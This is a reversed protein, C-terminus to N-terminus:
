DQAEVSFKSVNNNQFFITLRPYRREKPHIPAETISYGFTDKGVNPEGLAARVQSRTMGLLKPESALFNEWREADTNGKIFARRGLIEHPTYSNDKLGQAQVKVAPLLSTSSGLLCLIVFQKELGTM